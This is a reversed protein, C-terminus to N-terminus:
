FNPGNNERVEVRFFFAGMFFVLSLLAWSSQLFFLSLLGFVIGLSWLIKEKTNM